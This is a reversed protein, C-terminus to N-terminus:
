NHFESLIVLKAVLLGLGVPGELNLDLGIVDVTPGVLVLVVEEILNAKDRCVGYHKLDESVIHGRLVTSFFSEDTM